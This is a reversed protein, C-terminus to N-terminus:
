SIDYYYQYHMETIKGNKTTFTVTDMEDPQYLYNGDTTDQPKGLIEELKDVSDGIRFDGFPTKGRTVSVGTLHGGLYELTHGNWSLTVRTIDNDSGIVEREQKVPKGFLARAKEPTSGLTLSLKVVFQRLPGEQYEEEYAAQIYKGFVWATGAETPHDIKYWTDGHALTEELVIVLQDQSLRGLIKSNTDTDERIRVYSGTCIGWAPFHVLLPIRDAWAAGAWFLMAAFVAFFRRM